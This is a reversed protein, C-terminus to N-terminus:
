EGEAALEDLERAVRHSHEVISGAFVHRDSRVGLAVLVRLNARATEGLARYSAALERLAQRHAPTM